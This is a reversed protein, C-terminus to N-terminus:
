NFNSKTVKEITLKCNKALELLPRLQDITMGHQLQLMSAYVVFRIAIDEISLPVGRIQQLYDQLASELAQMQAQPDM